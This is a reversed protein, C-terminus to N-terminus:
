DRVYMDWYNTGCFGCEEQRDMRPDNWDVPAELPCKDNLCGHKWPIGYHPDPSKLKEM